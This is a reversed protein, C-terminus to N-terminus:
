FKFGITAMFQHRTEELDVTSEPAIGVQYPIYSSESMQRRYAFDFFVEAGRIGAGLSLTGIDEGTSEYPSGTIAYGARFRFQEHAVEGGFRLNLASTLESDIENNLFNQSQVDDGNFDFQASKYDVYEIEASLFGVKKVLIGASGIARWPTRLSYSFTGPVSTESARTSLLTGDPQFATYGYELENTFNDELNLVTPTHIAGGLRFAQNVRYIAGIKLNIGAGSTTVNERFTLEDFAPIEDSEDTERYTRNEEYNLFPIGLTAGIMLKEKFNGAYSFVLETYRGTRTIRQSKDVPINGFEGNGDIFDSLYLNDADPEYIASTLYALNEEFANLQTPPVFDSGEIWRDTISGLSTGEFYTREHFNALRNIGIGFVSTTWKSAMPRSSFVLGLNNFNFNNKNATQSGNISGELNGDNSIREFSPTFTFESRRFAALGAPNTSLVSFDAGLAGIGGGIGATRATGGVELNSFRVADLLTQANIYQFSLLTLIPLCIFIKKM